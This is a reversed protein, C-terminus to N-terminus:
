VTLMALPLPKNIASTQQTACCQHNRALASALRNGAGLYLAVAIQPQRVALIAYYLSYQLRKKAAKKHAISNLIM